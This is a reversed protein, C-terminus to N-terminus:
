NKELIKKKQAEYEDKNLIGDDYLKKLKILEDAVSLQQNVIVTSANKQKPQFEEPVVIEGKAIANEIDVEYRAMTGAKVIAYYVYGRKKNGRIEIKKVELTLGSYRAPLANNAAAGRQDGNTSYTLFMSNANVRIFNFAGDNASGIGVKLNDGEKIKFGTSTKLVDNDFSPENQGLIQMASFALLLFGLVKKM